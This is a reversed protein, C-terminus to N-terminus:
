FLDRDLYAQDDVLENIMKRAGANGAALAEYIERNNALQEHLDRKITAPKALTGFYPDRFRNLPGYQPENLLHHTQKKLDEIQEKLVMCYVKLKEDGASALNAAEEGLWEMELQLMERLDSAAYATNLRQMWIKKHERLQTDPELDPHFAKALQKFLSKLDRSKAEELELRKREKEAQAKTQKRRPKASPEPSLGVGAADFRDAIIRKFEEPDTDPNLDSLDLNIGANRAMGEIMSRFIEFEDKDPQPTGEEEGNDELSPDLAELIVELASLDDDSLGVPDALLDQAHDCLMDTFIDRRRATLKLAQLAKYGHFVIDRNMRSIEELIPMLDSISIALVEDLREQEKLHRAKASELSKMLKNFETQTRSLVGGKGTRIVLVEKSDPNAVRTKKKM